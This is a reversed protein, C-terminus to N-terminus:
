GLLLHGSPRALATKAAVAVTAYVILILVGLVVTVLSVAINRM